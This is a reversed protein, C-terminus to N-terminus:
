LPGDDSNWGKLKRCKSRSFWDSLIRQGYRFLAVSVGNGAPRVQILLENDRYPVGTSTSDAIYYAYRVGCDTVPLGSNDYRPNECFSGRWWFDVKISRYKFQDQPIGLQARKQDLEKSIYYVDTKQPMGSTSYGFSNGDTNECKFFDNARAISGFLFFLILILRM